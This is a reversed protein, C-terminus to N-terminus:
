GNFPVWHDVLALLEERRFPKALYDSMGAARCREREEPMANATLAVIPLHPWRGSQRIRRSAEYGDMVPMNCDMLILDFEDQELLELAEAGQTALQVQCGLKALMGKAVLQNVPNDEVLLIRARGQELSIAPTALPHEPEHGQLTRRLTQYLANRALPRALQHLPALALSQENPLFNGYATVLLIPTKLAPRLEFLHDVDDTILLDIATTDLTASSDHRQYALGWAPLLNQLLENLGSGAASLAAVRGHLPTPPIAETHVPLPLEATFCSGFGPESRIHLHGQMAKCLNRTLALGLGTGGYQRTIGAGAQTFPQFIRAQAEEPIGIGTDRVELRVGGVITVLRIDVRGFRTFKLANSLLNSVIQRVRTPDGLVTSPFDRAILCTLEVSQATNQSLLNATDEVMSGMDFAIRELELQGADFKSLDLIDNLLEVLVKGSDHAIALQQRQESPLPNDLALAIMGLMGNLPTRIEHSMNALFAARAQAMDLARSRAQELEQNSLSLSSNSAKLENTRASVIDELENLYQTLRNEATRRQEIETAMSVFQQNAVKVLVGIEDHEHGHPCELRTQRPKRPDSGSLAGIVTVLPKTLMMYFLALLIGTLVLSRAFGNLLTIGARDLFRSGFAYTDVDLYLTGLYEEPMHTLYLREKFQRQEGFLFDSLPRYRDELRPREVDALVTENNDILRARVVAPSQLLGRTLELALEADINYAIRSAPNHSIQLLARVERNISADESAYDIGIQILSLLTGLIFGVLVTLRAQKYSLRNTFKIDMLGSGTERGKRQALMASYGRCSAPRDCM